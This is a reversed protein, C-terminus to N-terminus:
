PKPTLEAVKAKLPRYVFENMTAVAGRDSQDRAVGAYAQLAQRIDALAMKTERLTATQDQKAEAMAARHVAEVANLYDIAYQLRGIWYEVYSRGGPRCKALARLAADLARQYGRRDELLDDPMPKPTWHRMMMGPVAFGFGLENWELSATVAEVERFVQLLDLVCPQGCVVRIQDRYVTDPTSTTDWAARALYAVSPDQGGILWYRTSFGAWGWRRLDQTLQHLSGTTLQPVLGINDDELTFILTSPIEHRPVNRLVDRRRVVRTPTYDVFTMTESGSPLIRDLLPYLEEAISDYIFKTHPRRTGQLTQPDALLRDYFYLSAIDGQVEKVARDPGGPYNPRERAAALVSALSRVGSIGYKADLRAWASEYYETWQRFEPMSFSIYDAEPYTNVAARLVARAMEFLSPDDIPTGPGPVVDLEGLQHVKQADKLLPAFEPTFEALSANLGLVCEMGRSRADTMINHVLREGAASFEQYSGHLPLDPNWFETAPGFLQRGAMDDTIPFHFDYWLWASRRRIGRVEYNLFPQWPWTSLFLRNFKMKALQDIVPRYDARGWSEPGCAFDNIVRWQRVPLAPEMVVDLDPLRFEGRKEPLVDGHLLYRVGWREVLEYVAWLTARPSGGAVILAPRKGLETRRLVIGQSSVEPFPRQRRASRLLTNTQPGGIIFLFQSANPIAATPETRIAFLKALYDCLQQAAFRELEPQTDGVIVGVRPITQATGRAPFGATVLFLFLCVTYLSKM